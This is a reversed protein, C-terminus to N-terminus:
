KWVMKVKVETPSKGAQLILSYATKAPVKAELTYDEKENSVKSGLVSASDLAKNGDLAKEVKEKDATKVVYASVPGKSTQITVTVKQNYTPPDVDYSKIGLPELNATSEHLGGGCGSLVMVVGALVVLRMAPRMM